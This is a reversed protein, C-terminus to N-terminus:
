FLVSVSACQQISRAARQNICKQKIGPLYLKGGFCFCRYFLAHGFGHCNKDVTQSGM